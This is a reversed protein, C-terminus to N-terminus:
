KRCMHKASMGKSWLWGKHGNVMFTDPWSFTRPCSTLMSPMFPVCTQMRL